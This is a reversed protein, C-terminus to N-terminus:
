VCRCTEGQFSRKSKGMRVGDEGDKEKQQELGINLKRSRRLWM